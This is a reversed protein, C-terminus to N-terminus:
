KNLRQKKDIRHSKLYWKLVAENETLDGLNLTRKMSIKEIFTIEEEEKTENLISIIMLGDEYNLEIEEKKVGPM